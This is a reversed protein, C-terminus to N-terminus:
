EIPIESFRQDINEGRSKGIWRAAYFWVIAAAIVIVTMRLSTPTNAGFADDVVARYMVFGLVVSAIAGTITMLPLGLVKINAPSNEYVDRKIFPFLMGAFSVAFFVVGMGLLGSLIALLDTFAYVALLITGIAAILLTAKVPAHSRPSVEGLQKPMVGDISWAMAARSSYLMAVGVAYPMLILIWLNMLVTLVTSGGAISAYVNIYAPADIPFEVSSAALNFDRGVGALAFWSLAILLLGSIVMSGPIGILQSRKVNRIEGSFSVALVSFAISFMPWIMFDLTSALSFAPHLDTAQAGDRLVSDYAGAGALSDFKDQFDIVGVATLFLVAIMLGMSAFAVFLSWRQVRFFVRAGRVLMSAFFAVACFGAIFIGYDKTFFTSIDALTDSGTQAGLIAFMPALGFLAWFAGNIGVYFAQWFAQSVSMTFGVVPHIVRSLFVYEGGSRPYAAAFLAYTLGAPIAGAASLAIALEISAGPYNVLAAVIFVVYPIVIAAVGYLLTDTPGVERVLGSSRRAFLGAPGTQIEEAGTEAHTSM